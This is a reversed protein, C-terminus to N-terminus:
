LACLGFLQHSHIPLPLSTPPATGTANWGATATPMTPITPLNSGTLTTATLSATALSSPTPFTDTVTITSYIYIVTCADDAISSSPLVTTVSSSTSLATSAATTSASTPTPYNSSNAVSISQLGYAPTTYGSPYTTSSSLPASSPSSSVATQSLTSAGSYLSPGPVIYTSLSTYINVLVGPDSPSYLEM